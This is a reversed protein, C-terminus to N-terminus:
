VRRGGRIEMYSIDGVPSLKIVEKETTTIITQVGKIEELLYGRRQMDLESMVDDLLLVPMEGTEKEIIELEALKISLVATRQQGQSGYHKIEKGKQMIVWDDRHPGSITVGYRKENESNKEIERLFREKIEEADKCEEIGISPVYRIELTEKGGTIGKQKEKAIGKLKESMRIREEVIKAGSEALAESWIELTSSDSGKEKIEKLLNNRQKLIRGYKQLEYFYAPRIQSIAIDIFRRRESPAGKVIALDEPSFMVVRINGLLEGIRRVPIGNILIRKKEGKKLSIEISPSSYSSIIDANVKYGESGTRILEQDRSTRHSRGCSCLFIAELVNTKGQANGGFIVNIGDTFKFEESHYNRFNNLKLGSIRM